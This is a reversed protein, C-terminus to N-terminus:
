KPFRRVASYQAYCTSELSVTRKDRISSKNVFAGTESTAIAMFLGMGVIVGGVFVGCFINM